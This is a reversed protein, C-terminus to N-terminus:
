IWRRNVPNTAVISFEGDVPSAGSSIFSASWVTSTRDFSLFMLRPWCDQDDDIQAVGDVAVDRDAGLLRGRDRWRGVAGRLIDIARLPPRAFRIRM